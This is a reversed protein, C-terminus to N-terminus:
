RWGTPHADAERRRDHEASASEAEVEYLRGENTDKITPFCQMPSTLPSVASCSALTRIYTDYQLKEYFRRVITDNQLQSNRALQPPGLWCGESHSSINTLPVCMCM